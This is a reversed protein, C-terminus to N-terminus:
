QETACEIEKMGLVTENRRFKRRRKFSNGSEDM